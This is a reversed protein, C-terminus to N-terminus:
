PGDRVRGIPERVVHVGANPVLHALDVEIALNKVLRGLPGTKRVGFFVHVRQIRQLWAEDWLTPYSSRSSREPAGWTISSVFSWDISIKSKGRWLGRCASWGLFVSQRPCMGGFQAMQQPSDILASALHPRRDLNRRLSIRDGRSRAEDRVNWHRCSDRVHELSIIATGQVQPWVGARHCPIMRWETCSSIEQMLRPSRSTRELLSCGRSTRNPSLGERLRARNQRNGHPLM